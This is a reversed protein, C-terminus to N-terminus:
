FYKLMWIYFPGGSDLLQSVRCLVALTRSSFRCGVSFEFDTFHTCFYKLLVSLQTTWSLAM